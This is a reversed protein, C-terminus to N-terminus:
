GTALYHIPWKETFDVPALCGSVINSSPGGPRASGDYVHNTGLVDAPGKELNSAAAVWDLDISSGTCLDMGIPDNPRNKNWIGFTWADFTFASDSALASLLEWRDNLTAGQPFDVRGLYNCSRLPMAIRSYTRPNTLYDTPAEFAVQITISSFAQIWASNMNFICGGLTVVAKM